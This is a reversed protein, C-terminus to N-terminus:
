KVPTVPAPMIAGMEQCARIGKQSGLYLPLSALGVTVRPHGLHPYWSVPVIAVAGMFARLVCPLSTTLVHLLPM